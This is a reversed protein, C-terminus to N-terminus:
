RTRWPRVLVRFALLPHSWPMPKVRVSLVWAVALLAVQGALYTAAAGMVGYRAVAFPAFVGAVACACLTAVSIWETKNTFFFLSAVTFYSATFAGGILFWIALGIADFYREGLLAGGGLLLFAWLALAVFLWSPVSLYVLAVVRLRNRSTSRSLMRYIQPAFAKMVADALVNIVLGLQSAAGYVGLAEAGLQSAVVFRDLSSLLAGALAHPILPLGFRLLASVDASRIKTVGVLRYLSVVSFGAVVLGAVVAGAIRGTGGWVLLFVGTLSLGGNLAASAVQLTAAPLAQHCSQWVAFRMGQLVMCGALLAAMACVGPGLGVGTAPGLLAVLGAALATSLVVLLVATWTFGGPDGRSTDLWRVGVAGHLSLGAVAVSISVLMFFSVVEGYEAPSLARTLIPLLFFPVGAAVVNALGYIVGSRFLQVFM